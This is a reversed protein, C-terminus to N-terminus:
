TWLMLEIQLLLLRMHERRPRDQIMLIAQYLETIRTVFEQRDIIKGTESTM